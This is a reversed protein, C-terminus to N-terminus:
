TISVLTQFGPWSIGEAHDQHGAHFKRDLCVGTVEHKWWLKSKYGKSPKQLVKLGELSPRSPGLSCKQPLPLSSCPEALPFASLSKQQNWLKQPPVGPLAPQWAERLLLQMPWFNGLPDVVDYLLMINAHVSRASWHEWLLQWKQLGAMGMLPSNLAWQSLGLCQILNSPSQFMWSHPTVCGKIEQLSHSKICKWELCVFCTALHFVACDPESFVEQVYSSQLHCVDNKM